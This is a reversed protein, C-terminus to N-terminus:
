IGAEEFGPALRPWPNVQELLAAVALLLPESGPRGVLQAAVPTSSASHIGVPVVMAPFGALNWPAAYPAYAVNSWINAAWSRQGWALAPPPVAALAPTVLLDRDGLLKLAAAQWMQRPRESLLPSNLLLRGIAAHTRTRPELLRLDLESADLSTGAFWRSLAGVAAVTVAVDTAAPEVRDVSHGTRVLASAAKTAARGMEPDLTVWPVPPTLSVGVRLGRSIPEVVSWDARGAMVSLVLAADAVTTALVGNESMGYWDNAGMQAPVVGLGPKFGVIGTCAAPIRISGMGDAAHAVPVMGAAVAVASGGSSGGPTLQRNWPNRTVAQATDTTGFVCLEPVATLGVPIAGAARLRTVVVHDRSSPEASTARSGVRMPEGAVPINDKIAVPVGTLPGAPATRAEELARARVRVFASLGGDRDAIRRLSEAVAAQPEAAGRAVAESIGRATWEEIWVM